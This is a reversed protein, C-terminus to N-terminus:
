LINRLKCCKLPLSPCALAGFHPNPCTVLLDIIWTFRCLGFLLNTPAYNSCKQHMSLGGAYMSEYVWWPRFKLSAVVKGKITNEISPWPPQMWIDNQRPLRSIRLSPVEVVKSAWLKKQLGRISTLNLSLNYGKDLAKWLYTAHWRCVLINLDNKVKLPWSDFQCKWEQGKKRGYSINYISLHIM